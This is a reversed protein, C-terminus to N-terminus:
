CKDSDRKLWFGNKSYWRYRFNHRIDSSHRRDHCGSTNPKEACDGCFNSCCARRVCKYLEGRIEKGCTSCPLSHGVKEFSVHTYKKGALHLAQEHLRLAVAHNGYRFYCDALLIRWVYDNQNTTLLYRIALYQKLSFERRRRSYHEDEGQISLPDPPLPSSLSSNLNSINQISFNGLIELMPINQEWAALHLPTWGYQGRVTLDAGAELLLWVMRQNGNRVAEHLPTNKHKNPKNLLASGHAKLLVKAAELQHYRAAVHIPNDYTADQFVEPDPLLLEVLEPEPESAVENLAECLPTLGGANMANVDANWDILIEVIEKSWERAALHLPTEGFVGEDSIREVQTNAGAALLIQLVDPSKNMVAAFVPFDYIGGHENPDHGEDLLMRAVHKLGFMAAFYLPSAPTALEDGLKQISSERYEIDWMGDEETQVWGQSWAAFCPGRFFTVIHSSHAVCHALHQSHHPWNYMSYTLFTDRRWADMQLTSTCPGHRLVSSTMYAFCARMLLANGDTENVFFRNPTGDPLSSSTLYERVSFHGFTIIQTEENMKIFSGCIELLMEDRDLKQEDSFDAQPDIIAALALEKLRFPRQLYILWTLATRAIRLDDPM